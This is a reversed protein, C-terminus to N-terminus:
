VLLNGMQDIVTMDSMIDGTLTVLVRPKLVEYEVTRRDVVVISMRTAPPPSGAHSLGLCCATTPSPHLVAEKRAQKWM